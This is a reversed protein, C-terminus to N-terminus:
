ANQSYFEIVAHVIGMCFVFIFTRYNISQSEANFNEINYNREM